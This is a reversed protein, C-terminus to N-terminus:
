NLYYYYYNQPLDITKGLFTLGKFHIIQREGCPPKIRGLCVAPSTVSSTCFRIPTEFLVFMLVEGLAVATPSM